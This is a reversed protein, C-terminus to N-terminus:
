FTERIKKLPRLGDRPDARWDRDAFESPAAKKIGDGDAIIGENVLNITNCIQEPLWCHGSSFEEGEGELDLHFEVMTADYKYIARLLVATSVSHDSLGINCNFAERLTRIASVNAEKVPTPYGSIAHLLTLKADSNARFVKVAHAIEEITAMGTSLVLEKGTKACEIILDDWLLEYSAIKYFDVYPELERVAKLYFPTCSFKMGLEHTYSSLEPLFEIPLEWEKRKVHEKSKALIEPAFLEDIKFLQFKVASCGIQSSVKIFEKARDLDKGHNSSVEAIFMPFEQNM